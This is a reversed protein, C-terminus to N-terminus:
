EMRDETALARPYAESAAALVEATHSRLQAPELVEAADGRGLIWRTIEFEGAARFTPEVGGDPLDRFSRSPHWM